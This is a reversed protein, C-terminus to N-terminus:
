DLIQDLTYIANVEGEFHRVVKAVMDLTEASVNRSQNGGDVLLKYLLERLGINDAIGIRVLTAQLEWQTIYPYQVVFEGLENIRADQWALLRNLGTQIAILYPKTDISTSLLRDPIASSYGPHLIRRAAAWEAYHTISLLEPPEAQQSPEDPVFESPIKTSM